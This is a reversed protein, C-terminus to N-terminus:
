IVAFIKGNLELKEGIPNKSEFYYKYMDENIIVVSEVNQYQRDQFLSGLLLERDNNDFWHIPVGYFSM